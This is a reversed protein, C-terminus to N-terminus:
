ARVTVIAFEWQWRAAAALEGVLPAFSQGAALCSAFLGADRSLREAPVLDALSALLRPTTFANASGM